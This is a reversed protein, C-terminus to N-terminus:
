ILTNDFFLQAMMFCVPVCVVAFPALLPVRLRTLLIVVPLLLSEARYLSLDDGLTLPLLWLAVVLVAAGREGHSLESRCRYAVILAAIVMAAVLLTQVGIIGPLADSGSKQAQRWITGLPFAPEFNYSANTNLSANWAGVDRQFNALVAVYGLFIPMGVMLAARVRDRLDGVSAATLPVLAIVVVM